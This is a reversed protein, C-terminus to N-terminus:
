LSQGEDVSIVSGTIAKSAESCLLLLTGDLDEPQMLKRRPFGRVQEQGKEHRFWESNLETEIYGPCIANVNVDYRAWERALAQTMMALGAKSICYLASGPLVRFSGISAINVIRGPKRKAILRRAVESALLFPGRLNTGIVTDFDSATQNVVQGNVSMGANNVLIDIDGLEVEARDLAPVIDAADTVDLVLPLCVGGAAAIEDRVSGLQDVRRGAVAVKAGAKALVLAFHRGLGSTAGTVLAVSGSLDPYM